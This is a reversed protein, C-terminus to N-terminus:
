QYTVLPLEGVRFSEFLKLKVPTPSEDNVPQLAVLNFTGVINSVHKTFTPFHEM